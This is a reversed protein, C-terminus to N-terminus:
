LITVSSEGPCYQSISTDYSMVCLESTPICYDSLCLHDVVCHSSHNEKNWILLQSAESLNTNNLQGHALAAFYDDINRDDCFREDVANACDVTGDCLATIPVDQLASCFMDSLLTGSEAIPSGKYHRSVCTGFIDAFNRNIIECGSDYVDLKPARCTVYLGDMEKTRHQMLFGAYHLTFTFLHSLSVNTCSINKITLDAKQNSFTTYVGLMSCIKSEEKSLHIFGIANYSENFQLIDLRHEFSKQTWYKGFSQHIADDNTQTYNVCALEGHNGVCIDSFNVYQHILNAQSIQFVNICTGLYMFYPSPCVHTLKRKYDKLFGDQTITGRQEVNQCFFSMIMEDGCPRSMVAVFTSARMSIGYCHKGSEEQQIIDTINCSVECTDSLEALNYFFQKNLLKKAM